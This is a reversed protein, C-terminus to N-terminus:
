LPPTLQLRGSGLYAPLPPGSPAAGGPASQCVAPRCVQRLAGSICRAAGPTCRAASPHRLSCLSRSGYRMAKGVRDSRILSRRRRADSFILQPHDRLVRMSWGRRVAERQLAEGAVPVRDLGPVTFFDLDQTARTTLGQVVLGAGGALLFERSESLEFFARGVDIQFPTLGEPGPRFV